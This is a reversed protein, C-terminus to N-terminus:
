ELRGCSGCFRQRGGRYQCGSRGGGRPVFVHLRHTVGGEPLDEFKPLQALYDFEFYVKGKAVADTTPINFITSQAVAVQGFGLIVALALTSIDSVRKM